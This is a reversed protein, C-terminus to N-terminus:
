DREYDDFILVDTLSSMVSNFIEHKISEPLPNDTHKFARNYGYAIGEEVARSVIDYTRLRVQGKTTVENQSM